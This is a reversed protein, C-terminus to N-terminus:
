FYSSVAPLAQRAPNCCCALWGPNQVPSITGGDAHASANPPADPAVQTWSESQGGDLWPSTRHMEPKTLLAGTRLHWVCVGPAAPLVGQTPLTRAPSRIYEPVLLPSM